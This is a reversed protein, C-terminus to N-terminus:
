LLTTPQFLHCFSIIKIKNFNDTNHTHIFIFFVRPEVDNRYVLKTYEKSFLGSNRLFVSSLIIIYKKDLLKRKRNFESSFIIFSNMIQRIHFYIFQGISIKSNTIGVYKKTKEHIILILVIDYIEETHM